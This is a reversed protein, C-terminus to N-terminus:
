GALASVMHRASSNVVDDDHEIVVLARTHSPAAARHEHMQGSGVKRRRRPADRQLPLM